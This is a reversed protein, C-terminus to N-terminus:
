AFQNKGRSSAFDCHIHMRDQLLATGFQQILAVCWFFCAEPGSPFPGHKIMNGDNEVM